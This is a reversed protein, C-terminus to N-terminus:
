EERETIDTIDSQKQMENLKKVQARYILSMILWVILYAVLQIGAMLLLGKADRVWGLLLAAPVYCLAILLYHAAASGLMPWEEIEYLGVSGFCIAGYLGSVVTQLALAGPLSGVRVALQWDAFGGSATGILWAILNGAAMGILFGIGARRLITKMM